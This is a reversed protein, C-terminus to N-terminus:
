YVCVHQGYLHTEMTLSRFRKCGGGHFPCAVRYGQAVGAPLAHVELCLPVGMINDPFGNDAIDGDVDEAEALRVAPAEDIELIPARCSGDDGDVEAEAVGRSIRATHMTEPPQCGERESNAKPQHMMVNM